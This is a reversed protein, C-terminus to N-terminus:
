AKTFEYVMVYWESQKSFTSPGNRIIERHAIAIIERMAHETDPDHHRPPPRPDAARALIQRVVDRPPAGLPTPRSSLGLQHARAQCPGPSLACRDSPLAGARAGCVRRALRADAGLRSAREGRAMSAAGVRCRRALMNLGWMWDEMSKALVKKLNGPIQKDIEKVKLLYKKMNEQTTCYQVHGIQQFLNDVVLGVMNGFFKMVNIDEFSLPLCGQSAGAPRSEPPAPPLPPFRRSAGWSRGIFVQTQTDARIIHELFNKSVHKKKPNSRTDRKLGADSGNARHISLLKDITRVRIVAIMVGWLETRTLLEVVLYMRIEYQVIASRYCGGTFNHPESFIVDCKHSSFNQNLAYIFHVAYM